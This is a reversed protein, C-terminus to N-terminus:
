GQALASGLQGLARPCSARRLSSGSVNATGAAQDVRNLAGM